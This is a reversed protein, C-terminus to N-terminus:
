KIAELAPIKSVVKYNQGGFDLRGTLELLLAKKSKGNAFERASTALTPASKGINTGGTVFRTDRFTLVGDRDTELVQVRHSSLGFRLKDIEPIPTQPLLVAFLTGPKGLKVRYVPTYVSSRTASVDPCLSIEPNSPNYGDAQKSSKCLWEAVLESMQYSLNIPQAANELSLKVKGMSLTPNTLSSLYVPAKSGYALALLQIVPTYTDSGRKFIANSSDGGANLQVTVRGRAGNPFTAWLVKADRTVKVGQARLERELSNVSVYSQGMWVCNEKCPGDYTLSLPLAVSSSLALYAGIALLGALTGGKLVKPLVYVERMGRSVRSAAGFEELAGELAVERSCGTMQFERVRELLNAELEDRVTQRELGFLGTCASNLYRELSKERGCHKM